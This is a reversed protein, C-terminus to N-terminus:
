KGMWTSCVIVKKGDDDDFKVWNTTKPGDSDTTSGSQSLSTEQITATTANNQQQDGNSVAVSRDIEDTGSSM